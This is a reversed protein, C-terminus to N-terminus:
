KKIFAYLKRGKHDAVAQLRDNKTKRIKYQTKIVPQKDVVDYFKVSKGMKVNVWKKQM